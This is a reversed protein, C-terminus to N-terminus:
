LACWYYGVQLAHQVVDLVEGFQDGEEAGGVEDVEEDVQGQEGVGEGPGGEEANQFVEGGEDTKDAYYLTQFYDPGKLEEQLAKLRISMKPNPIPLRQFSQPPSIQYQNLLLRKTNLLLLPPPNQRLNPKQSQKIPVIM